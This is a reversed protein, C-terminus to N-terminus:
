LVSGDLRDQTLGSIFPPNFLTFRMEKRIREQRHSLEDTLTVAGSIDIGIGSTLTVSVPM